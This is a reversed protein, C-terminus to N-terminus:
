KNYEKRLIDIQKSVWKRIGFVDIKDPESVEITFTYKPRVAYIGYQQLHYESYSMSTNEFAIDPKVLTVPNQIKLERGEDSIFVLDCKSKTIGKKSRINVTADEYISVSLEEILEKPIEICAYFKGTM